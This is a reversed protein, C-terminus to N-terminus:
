RERTRLGRGMGSRGRRHGWREKEIAWNRWEGEECRCGIPNRHWGDNGKGKEMEHDKAKWGGVSNVGMERVM